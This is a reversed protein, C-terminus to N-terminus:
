PSNRKQPRHMVVFIVVAAVAFSYWQLAYGYHKEATMVQPKWDHSFGAEARTSLLVSPLLPRQLEASVAPLDVAIVLKPWDAPLLKSGLLLGIAPPPALLGEVATTQALPLQPLASRDPWPWFGRAVFFADGRVPEFLTYAWVGPRGQDVRNDLLLTYDNNFSGQARVPQFRTEDAGALALALPVTPREAAAAFDAFLKEKGHARDLQWTGASLFLALGVCLILWAWWAPRRFRLKYPKDLPQSM